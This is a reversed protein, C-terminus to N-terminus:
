YIIFVLPFSKLDRKRCTLLGIFVPEEYITAVKTAVM